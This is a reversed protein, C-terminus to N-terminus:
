EETTFDIYAFTKISDPIKCDELLVPIFRRDKNVPDRFIVTSSELSVWDSGFAHNSMCLVLVRSQELGHNIKLQINDGPQIVWEDFWVTLGAQKLQEALRRVRPKDRSNHSLFADYPYKKNM